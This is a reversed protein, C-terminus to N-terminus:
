ISLEQEIISNHEVHFMKAKSNQFKPFDNHLCTIFFQNNSSLSDILDYLKNLSNNDLESSIDDILFICNNKTITQFVIGQALKLAVILLKQQGRSLSDVSNKNNTKINLDAKHPGILSYGMMIERKYHNKVQLMFDDVDMKHGPILEMNITLDPLLKLIYNNAYKNFVNLYEIRIKSLEISYEVFSRNWLNFYDEDVNKSSLLINRQKLIKRFGSNIDFFNNFHYFCGWDIFSRRFGPGAELLTLGNPIITQVCINQALDAVRNLIRGNIKACVNGKVDRTIGLKSVMNTERSLIESYVTLEKAAYNIISSNKTTRFSRAQSIYNIAELASTKGSGNGGWFINIGEGVTFDASLFNRFNNLLIKQIFM